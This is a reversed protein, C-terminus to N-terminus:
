GDYLVAVERECEVILGVKKSEIAMARRYISELFGPGLTKHVTIICGIIRETLDSGQTEM